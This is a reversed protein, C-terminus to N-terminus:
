KNLLRYIKYAIKRTFKNRKILRILKRSLSGALPIKEALHYDLSPNDLFVGSGNATMLGFIDAAFSGYFKKHKNAIYQCLIIKKTKSIDRIMSNSRVRYYFLFEPFVVAKYGAAILAIVSEYDEMGQFTMTTDNKGHDLFTQRKYVLSSSNITNHYLIIPPEPTFAAWNKGSDGFYKSWSGAFHVNPYNSLVTVARSYYMSDVKDDADLFALFEGAAAEAGANRAHSLGRNGTDIIKINKQERYQDLKKLSHLDTSGDNVIIIETQNYNSSAVSQLTEDIYNGMNYYPIVISLLGKQHGRGPSSVKLEDHLRIFPFENKSLPDSLIEKIASYKKEYIVKPSYVSSIKQRAHQSIVKRKDNTLELITKLEMSFSGPTEHDFIFGDINNEVVESQGGQKSVLVIKGLSMMEFVAYPLNDNVSPIIVLQARSLRNPIDVPKITGELKLLGKDIYHRYKKKIIDGMTKGEPHYVIDNSALIFLPKEFGNKWLEDFYNLLHFAGKQVTLKGFFIIEGAHNDRDANENDLQTLQVPNPIIKINQNNLEFRKRLENFIFNSPFILLDAAQL